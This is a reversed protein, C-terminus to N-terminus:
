LRYGNSEEKEILSIMHLVTQRVEAQKAKEGLCVLGRMMEVLEQNGWGSVRVYMQRVYGNYSDVAESNDQSIREFLPLIKYIKDIRRNQSM